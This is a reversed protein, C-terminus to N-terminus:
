SSAESFSFPVVLNLPDSDGKITLKAQIRVKDRNERGEVPQVDLSEIDVRPEQSLCELIHLKLLNRNREVNPEGILEHHRSGYRPHGLRELEGRGTMLRLILAQVINARARVTSVDRSRPRVAERDQGRLDLLTEPGAFVTGEEDAVLGLDLDIGLHKSM